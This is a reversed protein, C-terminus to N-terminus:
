RNSSQILIYRLLSMQSTYKRPVPIDIVDYQSTFTIELNIYSSSALLVQSNRLSEFWAYYLGYEKLIVLNRNQNIKTTRIKIPERFIIRPYGHLWRSARGQFFMVRVEFEMNM